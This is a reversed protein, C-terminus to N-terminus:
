SSELSNPRLIWFSSTGWGGFRGALAKSEQTKQRLTEKDDSAKKSRTYCDDISDCVNLERKKPLHYSQEKWMRHLEPTIMHNIQALSFHASLVQIEGNEPSIRLVPAQKREKEKAEAM